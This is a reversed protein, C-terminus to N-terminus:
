LSPHVLSLPTTHKQKTIRKSKRVGLSAMRHRKGKETKRQGKSHTLANPFSPTEVTDHAVVVSPAPERPENATQVTEVTIDGSPPGSSSPCLPSPLKPQMTKWDSGSWQGMGEPNENIRRRILDLLMQRFEPTLPITVSGHYERHPVSRPVRKSPGTSKVRPYVGKPM